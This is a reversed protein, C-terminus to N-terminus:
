STGALDEFLAKISERIRCYEERSSFRDVSALQACEGYTKARNIEDSAMEATILTPRFSDIWGDKSIGIYLSRQKERDRSGEAIRRSIGKWEPEKDSRGSKFKELKEHRLINIATAVHSPVDEPEEHRIFYAMGRDLFEEESPYVWEMVLGVLHKCEHSYLAKRVEETWPISDDRVLTLIFSKAFEEQAIIAVAYSTPFRELERLLDADKTLRQGNQICAEIADSFDKM